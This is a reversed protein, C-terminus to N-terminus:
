PQGEWDEVKLVAIRSFERGNPTILILSRSLAQGAIVVDYPGVRVSQGSSAL